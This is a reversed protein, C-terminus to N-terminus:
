LYFFLLYNSLPMDFRQVIHIGQSHFATLICICVICALVLFASSNKKRRLQKRDKLPDENYLIDNEQNIYYVAPIENQM